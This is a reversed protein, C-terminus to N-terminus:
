ILRSAEDTCVDSLASRPCYIICVAKSTAEPGLVSLDVLCILRVSQSGLERM